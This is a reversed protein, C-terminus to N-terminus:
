DLIKGDYLDTGEVIVEDYLELYGKENDPNSCISYQSDSYDINIKKFEVINGSLVYVGKIGDVERVAKNDIELGTHSDFTLRIQERRLGAYGTNMLDSKLIVAAKGDVTNGISVVEAKLPEATTLTFEVYVDKGISLKVANEYDVVCLLYWNFGDVLKGMYSSTDAPVTAVTDLVSLVGETTLTRVATYDVASEYGDAVSIYYGPHPATITSYGVSQSKLDALQTNLTALKESPDIVIGTSLQRSTIADRISDEYNQYTEVKGGDTAIVYQECATYIREDLPTIDMTQVGVKNQLSQFYAIDKEVSNIQNYVKAAADSTFVVAVNDGSAVRKGDEVLPVLTGSATAEIPYEDRVIFSDTVATSSVTKNLAVQTKVPQYNIKFVQYLFLIIILAGVAIYLGTYIKKNKKLNVIKNDAM